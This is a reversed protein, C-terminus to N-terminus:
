AARLVCSPRLLNALWLRILRISSYPQPVGLGFGIGCGGRLGTAHCWREGTAYFLVPNGRREAARMESRLGCPGGHRFTTLRSEKRTSRKPATQNQPFTFGHLTFAAIQNGYTFDDAAQATRHLRDAVGRRLREVVEGSEILYVLKDRGAFCVGSETEHRSHHRQAGQRAGVGAVPVVDLWLLM